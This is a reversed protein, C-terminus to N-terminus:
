SPGGGRERSLRTKCIDDWIERMRITLLARVRRRELKRKEREKPPMNSIRQLDGILRDYTSDDRLRQSLDEDDLSYSTPYPNLPEQKAKQELREVEKKLRKQGAALLQRIEEQRQQKRAWRRRLLRIICM